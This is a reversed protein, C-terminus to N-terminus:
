IIILSKQSIDPMGPGALRKSMNKMAYFANRGTMWMKAPHYQIAGKLLPNIKEWNITKGAYGSSPFAVVLALLFATNLFNTKM